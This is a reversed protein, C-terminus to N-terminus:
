RKEQTGYGVVVIEDLQSLSPVLAIDLVSRGGISIEQSTYGIASVILSANEPPEMVFSGNADTATGNATGKVIISVGPIPERTESDTVTGTIRRTQAEANFAFSVFLTLLLLKFTQYKKRM